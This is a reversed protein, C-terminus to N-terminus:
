NNLVIFFASFVGSTLFFSNYVNNNITMNLNPQKIVTGPTSVKVNDSYILLLELPIAPSISKIDPPANELNEINAIDILGYIVAEITICNNAITM